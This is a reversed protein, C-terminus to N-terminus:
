EYHDEAGNPNSVSGALLLQKGLSVIPIAFKTNLQRKM